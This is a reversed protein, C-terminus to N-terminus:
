KILFRQIALFTGDPRIARAVYWGAPQRGLNVSSLSNTCEYTNLLRGTGDYIELLYSREDAVSFYIESNRRVPNPFVTLESKAQQGEPVLRSLFDEGLTHLTNSTFIPENFDFYIAAQNRLETGLPVEPLHTITYSVVGQSGRLDTTSDPLQINPFSITLTRAEDIDFVYPHSSVGMRLSTLDFEPAITDRIVVTFATDTGTNQFQIDYSITTGAEIYNPSDIGLPLGTKENPDFSGTNDRCFLDYWDVDTDGFPLQTVIGTTFEGDSNVGCGEVFLTPTGFDPNGSAQNTQLHYTSGNAALAPLAFIGGAELVPGSAPEGMLMVGDQIVIYELPTTMPGEGDNTIFFEIESGNCEASLTLNAGNWNTATPCPDNPTAAAEICHTQGLEAECSALLTLSINGCEFAQLDGVDFTLTHATVNSPAISSGVYILFPDLEVTIQANEATVPGDNCYFVYAENEFCRRIVPAVVNVYMTPCEELYPMFVDVYGTGNAAVTFAQPTPCSYYLENNYPLAEALYDGAPLDISFQGNQDTLQANVFSGGATSISVLWQPVPIETGDLACNGEDAWLTGNVENCAAGVEALFITDTILCGTGFQTGLYIYQGPLTAFYRANTSFAMGGDPLIWQHDINDENVPLSFDIELVTYDECEVTDVTFEGTLIDDQLIVQNIRSGTCGSVPDEVTLLYSNFIPDSVTISDAILDTIGPGNWIYIFDPNFPNPVLQASTNGCNGGSYQIDFDVDNLTPILEIEFVGSCGNDDSITVSYLGPALDTQLQTVGGHSWEYLYPSQGGFPNAALEGDALGCTPNIIEFSNQIQSGWDDIGFYFTDICDAFDTIEVSYFGAEDVQIISDTVALDIWSYTYPPTGGSPVVALEFSEDNCGPLEFDFTGNLGDISFFSPEIFCNFEDFVDLIYDGPTLQFTDPGFSEIYSFFIEQTTLNEFRLQIPPFTYQNGYVNVVVETGGCDGNSLIEVDSFAPMIFPVEVTTVGTCGNETTITVAYTEGMLLGDVCSGSQGDPWEIAWSENWFELCFTSDGGPIFCFEQLFLEDPLQGIGEDTVVFEFTETCNDMSVMTLSYAGPEAITLLNQTSVINGDTAWLIVPPIDGGPVATLVLPFDDVCQLDYAPQLHSFDLDDCGQAGIHSFAFLLFCCCIIRLM